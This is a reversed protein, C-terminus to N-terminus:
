RPASAADAAQLGELVKVVASYDEDGLGQSVAAQYLQHTHTNPLAAFGISRAAEAALRLDKEMNRVHFNPRFDSEIVTRGKKAIMPSALASENLVELLDRPDIGSQKAFAISQGLGVMTHALLMNCALKLAAAAEPAGLRWIRRGLSELIPVCADISESGGGAFILLEGTTIQARGGLVPAQVFKRASESYAQALRHSSEPSVTSMDVHVSDPGLGALIGDAGLSAGSVAEPDTLFSIVVQSRRAVDAPTDAWGAGAALVPKATEFTRNWIIVSHRTSMLREATARGMIGIGIVGVRM